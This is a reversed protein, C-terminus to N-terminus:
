QLIAVVIAVIVSALGAAAGGAALSITLVRSDIRSDIAKDLATIQSSFMEKNASFSETIRADTADVRTDLKGVAVRLDTVANGLSGLTATLSSLTTNLTQLTQDTAAQRRDSRDFRDDMRRMLDDLQAMDDESVETHSGAHNRLANRDSILKRAAGDAAIRVAHYDWDRPPNATLLTEVGLQFLAVFEEPALEDRLSDLADGIARRVLDARRADQDVFEGADNGGGSAPPDKHHLPQSM